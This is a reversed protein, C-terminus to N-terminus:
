AGRASPQAAVAAYAGSVIRSISVRLFAALLWGTGPVLPEFAGTWVLHTGGDVPDLRVEGRYDRVPLGRTATYRQYHPPSAELIEEDVLIFKIGGMRRVAGAGLPDPDGHQVLESHNVMSAWDKWNPVDALLNYISAPPASVMREVRFGSTM